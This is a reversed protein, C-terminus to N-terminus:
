QIEAAYEEVRKSQSNIYDQKLAIECGTGQIESFYVGGFVGVAILKRNILRITRLEDNM